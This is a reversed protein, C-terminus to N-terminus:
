RPTRRRSSIYLQFAAFRVMLRGEADVEVRDVLQLFVERMAKLDTMGRLREAVDKCVAELDRLSPVPPAEPEAPCAALTEKLQRRRAVREAKIVAHISSLETEELEQEILAKLQREVRALEEELAKRDEAPKEKRDKEAWFAVLGEHIYSPDDTLDTLLN